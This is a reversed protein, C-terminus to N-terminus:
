QLDAMILEHVQQHNSVSHIVLYLIFYNLVYLSLVM